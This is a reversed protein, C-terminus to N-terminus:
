SKEDIRRACLNQAQCSTRSFYDVLTKGKSAEEKELIEARCTIIHEVWESTQEETKASCLVVDNTEIFRIAFCMKGEAIILQFSIFKRGNPALRVDSNSLYVLKQYEYIKEKKKKQKTFMLLDSFLFTYYRKKENNEITYLKGERVFRRTPSLLKVQLINRGFCVSSVKADLNVISSIIEGVKSLNEVKRKQESLM